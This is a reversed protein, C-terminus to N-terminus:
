CNVFKELQNTKENVERATVIKRKGFRITPFNPEINVWYKVYKWFRNLKPIKMLM